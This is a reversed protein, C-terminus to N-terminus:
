TRLETAAGTAAVCVISGDRRRGSDRILRLNRLETCRPMVSYRASGDRGLSLAYMSGLEKVTAGGAGADIIWGLVQSRLKGAVPTIRSAADIETDTAGRHVPVANVNVPDFLSSPEPEGRRQRACSPCIDANFATTLPRKLEM